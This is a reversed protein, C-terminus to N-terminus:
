EPIDGLELIVWNGERQAVEVRQEVQAADAEYAVTGDPATARAPSVKIRVDIPYIGTTSDMAYSDLIEVTTDGGEWSYGRDALEQAQDARESCFMCTQHSMAEWEATDNTAQIYSDLELFYQAAAEAGAAGDDAMQAPREPKVVVSSASPSPTPTASAQTAPPSSPTPPSDPDDASCGTVVLVTALGGGAVAAWGRARRHTWTCMMDNSGGATLSLAAV